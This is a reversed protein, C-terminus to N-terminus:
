QGAGCDCADCTPCVELGHDDCEIAIPCSVSMRFRCEKKHPRITSCACQILGCDCGEVRGRATFEEFSEEHAGEPVPGDDFLYSGLAEAAVDEKVVLVQKDRPHAM